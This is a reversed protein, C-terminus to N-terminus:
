KQESFTWFVGPPPNKLMETVNKLGSRCGRCFICLPPGFSKHHVSIVPWVMELRGVSGVLGIETIKCPTEVCVARSVEFFYNSM